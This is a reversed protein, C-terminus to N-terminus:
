RWSSIDLCSVTVNVSYTVISFYTDHCRSIARVNAHILSVSNEFPIVRDPVFVNHQQIMDFM